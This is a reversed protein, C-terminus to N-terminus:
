FTIVDQICELSLSELTQISQQIESNGAIEHQIMHLRFINAFVLKYLPISPRNVEFKLNLTLLHNFAKLLKSYSKKARNEIELTPLDNAKQLNGLFTHIAMQPYVKEFFKLWLIDWNARLECLDATLVMYVLEIVMRFAPLGFNDSFYVAINQDENWAFELIQSGLKAMEHDLNYDEKKLEKCLARIDDRFPSLRLFICPHNWHPLKILRGDHFYFDPSIYLDEIVSNYTSRYDSTVRCLYYQPLGISNQRIDLKLKAVDDFRELFHRVSSQNQLSFKLEESGVFLEKQLLDALQELDDFSGGEKMIRLRQDDYERMTNILPQLHERGIQNRYRYKSEYVGYEDFDQNRYKM